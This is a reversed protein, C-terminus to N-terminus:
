KNRKFPIPTRRSQQAPKAPKTPKAAQAQVQSQAQYAMTSPTGPKTSTGATAAETSVSSPLEPLVLNDTVLTQDTDAPNPNTGPAPPPPPPAGPPGGPNVPPNSNLAALASLAAAQRLDDSTYQIGEEIKALEVLSFYDYPWNYSYHGTINPTLGSIDAGPILSRRYLEIDRPARKKVKFVMWQVQPTEPGGTQVLSDILEREEVVAHRTQFKEALSPSLNQWIDALDQKTLTASFEFVYMLVPKVSPARTFDFTPPFIYKEMADELLKYTQSDVATLGTGSYPADDFMIYQRLNSTPSTKFPIAVVAEELVFTDKLQGLRQPTGSNMGILDCLSGTGPLDEVGTIIGFVGDDSGTPIQGYQHWMGKIRMDNPSGVFVPSGDPYTQHAVPQTASSTPPVSSSVGAFNLVPTEFKSQILWRKVQPGSYNGGLTQPMVTNLNFCSELQMASSTYTSSRYNTGKDRGTSITTNQLIQDLSRLGTSVPKYVFRAVAAGAYYPPTVHELQITDNGLSGIGGPNIPAGFALENNYLVFKEVDPQNTNADVPRYLRFEMAYHTNPQVSNFNGEQASQFNISDGMFMEQVGCLFNDIALRYEQDGAFAPPFELYSSTPPGGTVLSHRGVFAMSGSPATDYLYPGGSDRLTRINLNNFFTEPKYLTEFPVKALRYGNCQDSLSGPDRLKLMNKESIWVKTGINSITTYSELGSGGNATSSQGYIINQAAHRPPSNGPFKYGPKTSSTNTLVWNGVGLGSKITNFLIGPSCMPEMFIRFNQSSTAFQPGYSQSLLSAIELTREAPYFGKYPLFKLFAECSLTIKDRKIKLSGARQENFDDDIPKFYELFDSNTYIKYFRPESSSSVAAGTLEFMDAIPHLFNGHATSLYESMRPSIRFEPVISYDKASRRIKDNYTAYTQYPSKGSQKEVLYEADGVLVPVPPHTGSVGMPIRMAYTPTTYSMGSNWALNPQSSTFRSYTNMLIGGGGASSTSSVTTFKLHGDMPWISANGLNIFGYGTGDPLNGPWAPVAGMEYGTSQDPIRGMADPVGVFSHGLGYGGLPDSRLTRDNDWIDAITFRTRARIESKYANLQSPYIRESHSILVSLSEGAGGPLIFDRVTDYAKPEDVDITLGLYNDLQRHSFYEFKNGYPVKLVLNDSVGGVGTNNEFSFYIPNKSSEIPSEYFDIFKNPQQPYVTGIPVGNVMNPVPEPAIAHGILNNKRLYRGTPGQAARIQKWTPWGYPGNRKLLFANLAMQAREHGSMPKYVLPFAPLDPYYFSVQPYDPLYPTPFGLMHASATLPDIIATNYGAFSIGIFQSETYEYSHRGFRFYKPPGFNGAGIQSATILQSMTSASFCAPRDLGFITKGTAMSATIWAYQQESQPIIHQVYLNDYVSATYNGAAMATELAGNEMRRRSNPNTKHWSPTISYGLGGDVRTSNATVSGYAADTGFPGCHLTARQDLGRNKDLQDVVTITQAAIPDVSASGSLGYDIVALNHYPQANYVSMEEHAPDMYGLSMVEYGSGAFRNVIVTKQSTSGTRLPIAYDLNGGPNATSRDTITKVSSTQVYGGSVYSLGATTIALQTTRNYPAQETTALDSAVPGYDKVAQVTDGTGNGFKWWARLNAPADSATLDVVGAAGTFTTTTITTVKGSSSTVSSAGFSATSYLKNVFTAWSSDSFGSSPYYTAVEGFASASLYSGATPWGSSNEIFVGIAGRANVDSLTGAPLSSEAAEYSASVGNISMRIPEGPDNGAYMVIHYWGAGSRLYKSDNLPVDLYWETDTGSWGNSVYRLHYPTSGYGNMLALTNVIQGDRGLTWLYRTGAGAKTVDFNAASMSVWTSLCTHQGMGSGDPASVANDSMHWGPTDLYGASDLRMKQTNWPGAVTRTNNTVTSFTPIIMPFRGRTALTEPYLAFDFSQDKFFPDNQTRGATNLVQYKQEYNGIITSGTRMQINQINVPRKATVDRFRYATPIRPTPAGGTSNAPIIALSNKFTSGASSTVDAFQIRFGEGRTLVTDTGDNLTTHRYQRGGVYKETFPGQMPVDSGVVYDHHLNTIDINGTFNAIIDANYGTKVSASYISFPAYMNGDFANDEGTNAGPNLKFGLRQKYAPYYDDSSVILKESPAVLVNAPANGALTRGWASAAEFVYNAVFNHHRAVGGVATYAESSFKVPSSVRRNFAERIPKAIDGRMKSSREELYRQWYINTNGANGLSNYPDVFAPSETTIDATELNDGTANRGGVQDVITDKDDLPDSGMRWWSLLSSACSVGSLYVRKGDGYILDVETASLAKDWVAVDCMYGAYNASNNGYCGIRSDQDALTDPAAAATAGSDDVGNLYIKFTGASGGTYTVTIHYWTGTSLTTTSFVRSTAGTNNVAKLVSPYSNGNVQLARDANGFSILRPYIDGMASPNIWMSYSYAKAAGDFGGILPEWTAGQDNDIILSEDTGDFLISKATGPSVGFSNLPAHFHRWPRNQPTNSSGIQRKTLASNTFLASGQPFEEPSNLMATAAAMDGDVSGTLDTGGKRQLFPFKQQYKPRELVHSEIMTRINDSFDASAPVLQGLMLSLSSDFWKYFEYFKEFDLQDNGVKEFFKQRLFGMQKYDPRYREVQDGILNNLDKLNAFYNIMEESVVQYMSKEFTFYYNTPRSQTTFVDQDEAGLVQVMDESKINEPLNLKSSMVFDKDIASTSSAAFFSGSATYQKNLINGLEGFRTFAASGSSIDSVTFQGNADSGTNNLFEWNFVLTDFKTVDGFSASPNFDYAYLHPQLAGHNETDLIHGRLAEDEVYDLWYRAANIKVDSSHRVAGTFNTRHAGIYARKSGTIFAAPPTAVSGSITFENLIEGAEAQVGHLEIVYNSTTGDVLGSLPYEAPRVRVALNWRTNNYVEEYLSSELLPVYGGATGTLVFKVNTSLLEDRVAYVQYNGDETEWTTDTATISAGHVGFLSSSIVNTNFFTPSVESLKLPFLVEAELTTSYGGTLSVSSTIFGVSNTNTPDAYNYVCANTNAQTNFDVFRDTVVINRRNNRMEYEVNSAYMNTKILEDDIGFCRILNRFSKETGKSKYIYALNNYINQYITNKTDHLSQEYVLNESRDALTELLDADLFLNPAVLGKSSLLREAFPLPKEFSGSLYRVDNLTNLNEIQLQLTDFYSSIIQTLYSVDKSGEQDEETIWAPITNYIASNNNVDHYSGSLKLSSALTVVQPHYSYIIPDLFEKTAASSSVIASGTNRSGASYGTWTGNSSRGSYDLVTSDTSARGTIGENFKFYVGLDVNATDKTAVYPTPDTNVGGGVQTFWYRGIQKSTRQAKWYRFEDLSGSLKGDGAATTSPTTTGSVPAILAGINARLGPTTIDKPAGSYTKGIGLDLNQAYSLAGDVYFRVATRNAPHSPDSKITCAYHHWQGDALSATTFTAPSITHGKIGTTGSLATLLFPNAGAETSASIEIRLRGYDASSSNQGNWIDLLVEKETLTPFFEDKKLWFEVSAGRTELECTLNSGRNMSPEYYNSGTFKHALTGGSQSNPNPGGRFFIYEPTTPRGYGDAINDTAAGEASMIVYGTTRPYKEDFLYLDLYTSENQWVVKEKLSGDYPYGNYIHKLASDYYEEASGYRAFNKPNSFDTHPIYREEQIIDQIHYGPSEVEGSLEDQTKSALSQINEAVEFYKKISM